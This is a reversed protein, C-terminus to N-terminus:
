YRGSKSECVKFLLFSIPRLLYLFYPFILKITGYNNELDPAGTINGGITSVYVIGTISETVPICSYRPGTAYYSVKM